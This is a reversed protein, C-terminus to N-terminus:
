RFVAALQWRRIIAAFNHAHACVRAARARIRAHAHAHPLCARAHPLCAAATRCAPAYTHLCADVVRDSGKDV